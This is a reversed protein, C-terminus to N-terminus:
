KTGVSDLSMEAGDETWLPNCAAFGHPAPESIRSTCNYYDSRSIASAHRPKGAPSAALVRQSFSPFLPNVLPSPTLPYRTSPVDTSTKTSEDRSPARGANRPTTKSRIHRGYDNWFLIKPEIGPGGQHVGLKQQSFRREPRPWTCREVESRDRDM